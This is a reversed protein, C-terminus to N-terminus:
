KCRRISTARDAVEWQRARFGPQGRRFEPCEGMMSIPVCNHFLDTSVLKEWCEVGEDHSAFCLSLLTRFPASRMCRLVRGGIWLERLLLEIPLPCVGVDEGVVGQCLSHRWQWSATMARLASWSVYIDRAWGAWRLHVPRRVIGGEHGSFLGGSCISNGGVQGLLDCDRVNSAAKATQEDRERREQGILEEETPVWTGM